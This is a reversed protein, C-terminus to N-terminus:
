EESSTGPQPNEKKKFFAHLESERSSEDGGRKKELDEFISRDKETVVSQTLPNNKKKQNFDDVWLSLLKEM